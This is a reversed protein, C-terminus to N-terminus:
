TRTKTFGEKEGKRLQHIGLFNGDEECFHCEVKKEVETDSEM